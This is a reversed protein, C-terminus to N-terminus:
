GAPVLVFSARWIRSYRSAYLLSSLRAGSRVNHIALVYLDASSGDERGSGPLSMSWFAASM